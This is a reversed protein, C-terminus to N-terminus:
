FTSLSLGGAAKNAEADRQRQQEVLAKVKKWLHGLKSHGKKQKHEHVKPNHHTPSTNDGSPHIASGDILRFAVFTVFIVRHLM